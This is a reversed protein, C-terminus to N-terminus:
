KTQALKNLRNEYSQRDKRNLGKLIRDDGAIRRAATNLWQPVLGYARPSHTLYHPVAIEPMNDRIARIVAQAVDEPDVTPIPLDEGTGSSLETRVKSPMVTSINIPTDRLEQQMSATLGVVAFKTACYVSAGPIPYKGALSAVNVIHGKQRQLMGGLVAKMGHIVGRLNIDIQANTIAESEELFHGMPMIGANNVLIDVPGLNSETATIFDNFSQQSRVDVHYGFGNVSKTAQEALETDIDGIAVKAGLQAFAKATALGIGRGAGTIVVVQDKFNYSRKM